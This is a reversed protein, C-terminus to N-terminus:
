SGLTYCIIVGNGIQCTSIMIMQCMYQTILWLYDTRQVLLEVCLDAGVLMIPVKSNLPSQLQIRVMVLIFMSYLILNLNFQFQIALLHLKILSLHVVSSFYSFQDTSFSSICNFSDTFFLSICSFLDTSVIFFSFNFFSCIMQFLFFNFKMIM